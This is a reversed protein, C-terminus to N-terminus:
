GKVLSIRKEEKLLNNTQNLGTTHDCNVVMTTKNLQCIRPNNSKKILQIPNQIKLTSPVETTQPATMVSRPNNNQVRQLIQPTKSVNNQISQILHQKKCTPPVITLLLLSTPHHLSKSHICRNEFSCDIGIM